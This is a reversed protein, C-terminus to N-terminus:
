AAAPCSTVRATTPSHRPSPKRVTSPTRRSPAQSHPVLRRTRRQRGDGAPIQPVPDRDQRCRSLIDQSLAHRRRPVRDVICLARRLAHLHLARLERSLFRKIGPFDAGLGGNVPWNVIGTPEDLEYLLASGSIHVDIRESYMVDSGPLEKAHVAFVADYGGPGAQFFAPPRVDILYTAAANPLGAAADRLLQASNFPLLVPVPSAAMNAFLTDAAQNLREISRPSPETGNDLHAVAESWDVPVSAIRPNRMDQAAVTAVCAMAVCFIMVLAALSCARLM